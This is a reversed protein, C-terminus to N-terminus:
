LASKDFFILYLAIEIVTGSVLLLFGQFGDPNPSWNKRKPAPRNEPAINTGKLSPLM